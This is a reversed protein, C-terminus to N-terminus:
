AQIGIGKKVVSLDYVGDSQLTPNARVEGKVFFPTDLDIYDFIGLGAAMHAAATMALNSEMMGGIMLKLGASKALRAAEAGRVLGFKMLKINVARAAKTRIIRRVDELSRASEDACVICHSRHSIEKLGDWDERPVPQEVLQPHIGARELSKLFVLMQSVTFAQNADLYIASRKVARHVAAVRQFDEDPNRGIKIKFARFGQRYYRRAHQETEKLDGIVITIDTTLRSPKNGFLRWLPIGMQRCRADMLAMEAAAVACPNEAFHRHLWVSHQLYDAAQKGQLHRGARKLNASTRAITEGTIHTAVAAEGRGVTGDALHITMLVNDLIRHEGTAIRFPVLLPKRLTGVSFKKICGDPM